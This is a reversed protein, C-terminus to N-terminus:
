DSFGPVGLAAAKLQGRSTVYLTRRHLGGFTAHFVRGTEMTGLAAGSASLTEIGERTCVYLNGACDVAM